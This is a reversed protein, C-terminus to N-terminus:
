FIKAKEYFDYALESCQIYQVLTKKLLPRESLFLFSFIVSIESTSYSLNM